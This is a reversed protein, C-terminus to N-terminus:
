QMTSLWLAGQKVAATQGKYSYTKNGNYSGDRHECSVNRVFVRFQDYTMFDSVGYPQRGKAGAVPLSTTSSRGVVGNVKDCQPDWSTMQYGGFRASFFLVRYPYESGRPAKATMVLNRENNAASSMAVAYFPVSEWDNAKPPVPTPVASAALAAPLLMSNLWM